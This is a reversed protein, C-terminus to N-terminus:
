KASVDAERFIVLKKYIDEGVYKKLKEISKDSEVHLLMMHLQILDVVKLIFEDDYNLRYLINCAMQASVNEHGIFNAYMSNEKFNKCYGKGIDHLLAAWQMIFKDEREYNDTIYKYVFYTHRSVSLTHYPNDQPLEYIDNFDEIKLLAYFLDAYSINDKKIVGAFYDNSMELAIYNNPHEYIISIKDWGELYSPVHLQKYMRILVEDDLVRERIKNRIKSLHLSTNIYYCEKKYNKFIRIIHMRRKRNINAADIIVNKGEKLYEKTRKYLEEFVINNNEQNNIDNYLEERLSDSSLIIVDEKNAIKKAYYSKGSGPIGVMVIIKNAEM